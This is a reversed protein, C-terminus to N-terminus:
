SIKNTLNLAIISAIHARNNSAILLMFSNPISTFKQDCYMANEATIAVTEDASHSLM